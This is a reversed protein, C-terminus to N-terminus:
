LSIDRYSGLAFGLESALIKLNNRRLYRWEAESVDGITTFGNMAQASTVPHVMLEFNRCQVPALIQRYHDDTLAEGGYHIDFVSGIGSNWAVKGRWPAVSRQLLMKLVYRRVSRGVGGTLTDSVWPVRIPIDMEKCRAAVASFISKFAHVHQHSDIHTPDLGLSVFARIQADLERRIQDPPIRGLLLRKALQGRSLFCGDPAILAPVSQAPSLPRGWTLNFHLGVGLAPHRIAFDAAKSVAPANVMMTTSTVSGGLFAEAIGETAADNLGFDDANVILTKVEIAGM